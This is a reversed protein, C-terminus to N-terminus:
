NMMLEKISLLIWARSVRYKEQVDMCDVMEIDKKRNILKQLARLALIEQEM